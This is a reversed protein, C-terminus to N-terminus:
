IKKIFGISKSVSTFTLESESRKAQVAIRYEGQQLMMDCGYDKSRNTITSSFGLKEFLDVVFIEFERGSTNDLSSLDSSTDMM